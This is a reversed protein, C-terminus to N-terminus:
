HECVKAALFRKFEKSLASTGLNTIHMVSSLHASYWESNILFTYRQTQLLNQTLMIKNWPKYALKMRAKQSIFINMVSRICLRHNSCKECSRNDIFNL